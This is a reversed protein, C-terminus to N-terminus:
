PVGGGALVEDRNLGLVLCQDAFIEGGLVDSLRPFAFAYLQIHVRLDGPHEGSAINVQMSSDRSASFM